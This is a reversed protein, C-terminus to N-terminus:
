DAGFTYDFGVSWILNPRLGQDRNVPVQINGNLLLSRWVKIRLGFAADVLHNGIEKVNPGYVGLTDFAFTLRPHLRLDFGVTYRLKDRESPGTWVEYGLNLHPTVWGIRRSAIFLMRFSAEGTGLLDDEDGTPLGVQLLGSLDPWRPHDRLFNYKTRLLVDGIGTASGGARSLPGDVDAPSDVDRFQHLQESLQPNFPNREITARSRARAVVHELPLIAEVDWNELVGYKAFIAFVDRELEVDLDVRIRDLEVARASTSPDTGPLPGLVGDNTPPIIENPEISLTLDDLDDGDIRKFAIRTYAFAVDLRNRGITEAREAVLPGLSETSRIPVGLDFDFTFGPPATSLSFLSLTSLLQSSLSELGRLSSNVFGSQIASPVDREEKELTIGDGGYLDNVFNRLDRCQAPRPLAFSAALVGCAALLRARAAFGTTWSRLGAAGNGSRAIM